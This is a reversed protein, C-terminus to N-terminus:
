GGKFDFWSKKPQQLRDDTGDHNADQLPGPLNAQAQATAAIAESKDAADTAKFFLGAAAVICIFTIAISIVPIIKPDIAVEDPFFQGRKNLQKM